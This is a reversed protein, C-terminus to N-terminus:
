RMIDTTTPIDLEARSVRTLDGYHTLAYASTRQGYQIGRMVDGQLCGHLTGAVFADGAGPRDLVPVKTVEFEKEGHDADSLYVGDIQDTSVVTNIELHRRLAACVEPGTGHLGFVAEADRRSCFVITSLRALPELVERARAPGWLLSRYNVDLAIQIGRAAAEEVFHKVAAASKDTLAATIGTVFVMRTDLMTDWDLDELAFDRFPTHERDYTVKAPMPYEGPEMFYLAVRGTETMVINSVDVGVSRFENIVRESLEGRPMVSAWSTRRGLQSLLGAVNAESCAANMRLQSANVLRDGKHCTLRIQGEGITSLDYTPM